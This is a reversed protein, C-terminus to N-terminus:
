LPETSSPSGPNGPVPHPDGGARSSPKRVPSESSGRADWAQRSGTAADHGGADPPGGGAVEDNAPNCKFSSAPGRAPPCLRAGREPSAQARSEHDTHGAPRQARSLDASCPRTPPMPVRPSLVTDMPDKAESTSPCCPPCPSLAGLLGERPPTRPPGAPESSGSLGQQCILSLVLYSAPLRAPPEPGANTRWVATRLEPAPHPTPM